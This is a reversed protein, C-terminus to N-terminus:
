FDKRRNTQRKRDYRKVMLNLWNFLGYLKVMQDFNFSIKM